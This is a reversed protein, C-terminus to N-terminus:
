FLTWDKAPRYSENTTLYNATHKTIACFGKRVFFISDAKRMTAVYRCISAREIGTRRAIMLMTAPAESFAESVIKLQNKRVEPNM